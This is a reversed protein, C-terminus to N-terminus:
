CPEEYFALLQNGQCVAKGKAGEKLRRYLSYTCEYEEVSGDPLQLHAYFGQMLTELGDCDFCIQGESNIAFRSIVVVGEISCKQGWRRTLYVVALCFIGIGFIFAGIMFLNGILMLRHYRNIRYPHPSLSDVLMIGTAVWLGAGLLLVTSVFQEKRRM